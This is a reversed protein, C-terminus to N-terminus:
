DGTVPISPSSFPALPGSRDRWRSGSQIRMVSIISNSWRHVSCLADHPVHRDGPLVGVADDVLRREGPPVPEALGLGALRDAVPPAPDREEGGDLAGLLFLSRACGLVRTRVTAIWTGAPRRDLGPFADHWRFPHHTRAIEAVWVWTGRAIEGVYRAMARWSLFATVFALPAAAQGFRDRAGSQRQADIPGHSAVAEILVLRDATRDHM